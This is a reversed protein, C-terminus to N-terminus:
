GTVPPGAVPGTPSNGRTSRIVAGKSASYLARVGANNVLIDLGGMATVAAQIAARVSADDSADAQCGHLPETVNRPDVDLVCVEAGRHALLRATAAGIGSAGGTVVPPLGKLESM